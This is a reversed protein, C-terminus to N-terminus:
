KEKFIWLKSAVYNLIIVIVNVVIKSFLSNIFMIKIFIWMLITDIILTAIRAIFFDLFEKIAQTGEWSKSEFVCVKNTVFAFLFALTWAIINSVILHCNIVSDLLYFALINIATSGAGFIGYLIFEKYRMCFSKILKVM